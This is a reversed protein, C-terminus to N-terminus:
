PAVSDTQRSLHQMCVGDGPRVASQGRRSAERETSRTEVSPLRPEGVGRVQLATSPALAAHCVHRPAQLSLSAFRNLPRHMSVKHRPSWPQRVCHHTTEPTIRKCFIRGLCNGSAPSSSEISAPVMAQLTLKATRSDFDTRTDDRCKPTLAGEAIKLQGNM